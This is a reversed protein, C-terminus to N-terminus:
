EVVEFAGRMWPHIRCFYSYKGVPLNAPTSALPNPTGGDIADYGLTGSDWTGDPFPYNAVYRGNCPWKCTTVSHRIGAQQDANVFTLSSGKRLRAPAGERGSLSRDGPVYLFNAITVTSTQHGPGRDPEDRECPGAGFAEGCFLDAHHGWPRNPVGAAPDLAGAAGPKHRHQILHPRRHIHIRGDAHRHRRRIFHVRKHVHVQGDRHVHRRRHVHRHIHIDAERHIHVRRHVHVRGDRHRHRRRHVHKRTLGKILTGAPQNILTPACRGSPPQETDIYLGEHTMVDYWAHEKNEYTGSIRIRDGKHIPARWAPHTVSMQFDESFPANRFLAESKLLLTGGYGRGDDPCPNAASGYNEVVVNLGGPHLHGGTGIITGDLTSTWEIPKPHDRATEFVGDGDPQRPVDYTRGFLVGAVDRHPRGELAELQEKTGHKFTVDLVIYTVLPQSTKNHLMYIMVQPASAGIFQGYVPGNPDAASREQFDARTEEDGNGFIWETNGGTYNDEPNGPDLAFWHSHHIHAEQHSPETFDAARRMGPEIALIFGNQVPLELDVRNADHGPPVSYPGFYFKLQEVTGPPKASYRDGRHLLPQSPDNQADVGSVGVAGVGAISACAVVVYVRVVSPL